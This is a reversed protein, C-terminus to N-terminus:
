GWPLPVSAVLAAGAIAIGYPVPRASAAITAVERAAGTAQRMPGLRGGVGILSLLALVGGFIGTLLLLMPLRAAGDWLAAVALLKVDGGGVLRLSFLLSGCLLVAFAGGATAVGARLTIAPMMAVDAPCLLLLGLIVWNPIVLCRFDVAAATVMLAVFVASPVLHLASAMLDRLIASTQRRGRHQLSIRM